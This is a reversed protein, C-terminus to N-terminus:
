DFTIFLFFRAIKSKGEARFEIIEEVNSDLLDKVVDIETEM